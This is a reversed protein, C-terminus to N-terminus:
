ETLAIAEVEILLGEMALATVGVLTGAPPVDAPLYRSRVERIVALQEPRFGVVYYNLKVVDDFTAGAASLAARINEFVHTTQAALDDRGVINGDRDVSIQGSVFVVREGRAAVVQSFGVGKFLEPAEVREKRAM